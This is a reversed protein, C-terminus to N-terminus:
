WAAEEGGVEGRCRLSRVWRARVKIFMLRWGASELFSCCGDYLATNRKDTVLM